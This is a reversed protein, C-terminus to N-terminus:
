RCSCLCKKHFIKAEFGDSSGKYILAWKFKGKFKCLEVLEKSQNRTLISSQGFNEFFDILGSREEM